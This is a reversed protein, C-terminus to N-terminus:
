RQGYRPGLEPSPPGSRQSGDGDASLGSFSGVSGSPGRSGPASGTGAEPLSNLYAAMRERDMGPSGPQTM